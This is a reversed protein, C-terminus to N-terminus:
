ETEERLRNALRKRAGSQGILRDGVKSMLGEAAKHLGAKKYNKIIDLKTDVDKKSKRIYSNLTDKDSLENISDEKISNEERKRLTRKASKIYSGRRFSKMSFKRADASKEDYVKKAKKYKEDDNEGHFFNVYKGLGKSSSKVKDRLDKDSLTAKEIYSKLTENSLEDIQNYDEKMDKKKAMYAAIAQKRREKSSKGDFRPDTSYMFDKIWDEVSADPGLTESLPEHEEKFVKKARHLIGKLGGRDSINKKYSDSAKKLFRMTASQHAPRSEPEPRHEPKAAAKPAPKSESKEKGWPEPKKYAKVPKVGRIASRPEPKEKGWPEPKKYENSNSSPKMGLEKKKSDIASKYASIINEKHPVNEKSKPKESVSKIKATAAKIKDKTSSGVKHNTSGWSNGFSGSASGHTSSIKPESSHKGDDNATKKKVDNIDKDSVGTKVSNKKEGSKLKVTPEPSEKEHSGEPNDNATKKVLSGLTRVTANTKVSSKKEGRKLKVVPDPTEKEHSPAPNEKPKPTESSKPAPSEDKKPTEIAAKKPEEKTESKEVKPKSSAEYKDVADEAADHADDESKHNTTHTKGGYTHHVIHSGDSNKHISSSGKGDASSYTKVLTSEKKTEKPKDEVDPEKKKGETSSDPKKGPLTIGKSNKHTEKPKLIDEDSLENISFEENAKQWNGQNAKIWANMEDKSKGAIAMSTLHVEPSISDKQEPPMYDHVEVKHMDLFIKEGNILPRDPIKTFVDKLTKPKDTM